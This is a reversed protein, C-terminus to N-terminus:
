IGPQLVRLTPRKPETDAIEVRWGYPLVNQLLRAARLLPTSSAHDQGAASRRRPDM